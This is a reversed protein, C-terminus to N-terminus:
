QWNHDHHKGYLPKNLPDLSNVCFIGLMASSKNYATTINAAIAIKYRIPITIKVVTKM